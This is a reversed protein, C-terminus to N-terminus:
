GALSKREPCCLVGPEDPLDPNVVEVLAMLMDQGFERTGDRHGCTRAPEVDHALVFRLVCAQYSGPLLSPMAEIRDPIVVEMVARAHRKGATVLGVEGVIATPRLLEYREGLAAKEVLALAIAPLILRATGRGGTELGRREDGEQLVVVL